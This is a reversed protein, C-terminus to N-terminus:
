EQTSKMLDYGAAVPALLCWEEMIIQGRVV